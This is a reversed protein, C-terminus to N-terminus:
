SPKGMILSLSYETTCMAIHNEAVLVTEIYATCDEATAMPEYDVVTGTVALYVIAFFKMDTGKTSSSVTIANWHTLFQALIPNNRLITRWETPQTAEEEDALEAYRELIERRNM